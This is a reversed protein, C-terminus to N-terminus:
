KTMLGNLFSRFDEMREPPGGEPLLPLRDCTVSIAPEGGAAHHFSIDTIGSGYLEGDCFVHTSKGHSAIIISHEKEM